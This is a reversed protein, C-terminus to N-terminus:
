AALACGSLPMFLPHPADDLAVLRSARTADQYLRYALSLAVPPSPRTYTIVAATSIGISGTRAAPARLDLPPHDPGGRVSVVGGGV